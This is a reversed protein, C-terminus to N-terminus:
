NPYNMIRAVPYLRYQEDDYPTQEYFWRLRADASAAFSADSELKDTFKKLLGPNDRLMQRALPEAAYHEFYGTRNMISLFYGWQLLSDPSLPELMLVVLTGLPQATPVIWDGTELRITISETTPEGPEIRMRGEYPNPPDAPRAASLRYHQTALEQGALQATVQQMEVGHARLKVAIESWARPIYYAAPRTVQHQPQDNAIVAVVNEEPEGTWRVVDSGAIESYERYWRVGRFLMSEPLRAPSKQWSLVVDSPRQQRDAQMAARLQEAHDGLARLMSELLVYTGLVRQLYPKLSHNEVLVTAVHRADGYGSSYRPGATWDSIGAAYDLNNEAFILPGPVHGRSSLDRTLAPELYRDMWGALRPSWAHSKNYGFTIDYQYDVGDTVHLDVYLDPQWRTIASVMARIEETELKTYDRNLNLNRANTRWGTQQPGRQNIRGYASVREHGDVNLIPVLLLNARDLLGRRRKGVTLDRLLMLGADKGDIEGAHIGAQALLTPKGNERLEAPTSAGEASAVVMWIDRGGASSGISLMHLEPAEAVLRRLYSLTEAYRPTQTLGSREAPTIWPDSSAAILELSDLRAPPLPPLIDDPLPTKAGAAAAIWVVALCCTRSM